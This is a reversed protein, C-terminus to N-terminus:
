VGDESRFTAIYSEPCIKFVRKFVRSFHYPDSYGCTEAIQKVPSNSDALMLDAAWRMKLRVLMQLPTEESYRQFLHCLYSKDIHCGCAIQELNKVKRFKEEIYCRARLYTQWAPSRSEKQPIATEDIFLIMQQLMLSCIADRHKGEAAGTQLLHEFLNHIRVPFSAHLPGDMLKTNRALSVVKDGSFIVFYKVLPNEESPRIKHPIRPGYLFITGPVLPYTEGRILLEGEGSDIFEVVHYKFGRREVRYEPSCHELGVTVVVSESEPNPILSLDHCEVSFHAYNCVRRPDGM